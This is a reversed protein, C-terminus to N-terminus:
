RQCLSTVGNVLYTYKPVCPNSPHCMQVDSWIRWGAWQITMQFRSQPGGIDWLIFVLYALCPWSQHMYDLFNSLQSSFYHLPSSPHLPTSLPPFLHFSIFLHSQIMQQLYNQKGRVHQHTQSLSMESRDPTWDGRGDPSLTDCISRFIIRTCVVAAVAFGSRM